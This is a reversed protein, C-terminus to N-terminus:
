FTEKTKPCFTALHDLAKQLREVLKEEGRIIDLQSFDIFRETDDYHKVRIGQLDGKIKIKITKDDTGGVGIEYFISANTPFLHYQNEYKRNAM